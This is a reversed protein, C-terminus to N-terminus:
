STTTMTIVFITPKIWVRCFIRCCVHKLRNARITHPRYGSAVDGERFTASVMQGEFADGAATIVIPRVFWWCAQTTTMMMLSDIVDDGDDDTAEDDGPASLGADM